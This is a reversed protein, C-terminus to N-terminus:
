PSRAPPPLEQHGLRVDVRPHRAAFARLRELNKASRPRDASFSGPEVGNRWGWVTHSADGTFLVPGEPTRALYATSGATHGPVSIAWVTGDGFVDVVAEFAGSPEPKYGWEHIDGKGELAADTPGRVFANVFGGASAEGPGTFVQASSPVDRLGAIHDLHMHTLFVGRVPEKQEAIWSATDARVRIKDVGMVDAALGRLAAHDPDDRLAHEVGTDVIYLGFAPHHLAHLMIIIPEPGDALKAEKARPNDLNILGARPVEWDAGVVTEVVVPGPRDVVAELDASSRAVGLSSPVIAHSTPTCSSLAFAAAALAATVAAPALRSRRSM